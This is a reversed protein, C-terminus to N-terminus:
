CAILVCASYERYYPGLPINALSKDYSCSAYAMNMLHVDHSYLAHAMNAIM